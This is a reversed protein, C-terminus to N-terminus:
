DIARKMLPGIRRLCGKFRSALPGYSMINGQNRVLEMLRKLGTLTKSHLDHAEDVFLAIPRQRRKILDLLQRERKETQTPIKVDRETSLDYFLAMILTVLNVRDKDVALSRAVLIDKDRALEEQVRQLLTTKGCGVIGSVAILQGQRVATKLEANM